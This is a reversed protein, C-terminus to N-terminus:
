LDDMISVLECACQELMEPTLIESNQYCVRNSLSEVKDFDVYDTAFNDFYEDDGNWTVTGTKYSHTNTKYISGSETIVFLQHTLRPNTNECYIEKEYECIVVEGNIVNSRRCDSFNAQNGWEEAVENAMDALYNQILVNECSASEVLGDKFQEFNSIVTSM